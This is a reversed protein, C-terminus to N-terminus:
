LSMFVPFKVWSNGLTFSMSTPNGFEVFGGRRESMEM